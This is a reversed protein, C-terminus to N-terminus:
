FYYRALGLGVISCCVCSLRGLSWLGVVWVSGRFGEICGRGGCCCM